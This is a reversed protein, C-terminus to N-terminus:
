GTADRLPSAGLRDDGGLTERRHVATLLQRSDHRRRELGVGIRGGANPLSVGLRDPRDDAIHHALGLTTGVPGLDRAQDVLLEPDSAACSHGPTRAVKGMPRRIVMAICRKNCSMSRRDVAPQCEGATCARRGCKPSGDLPVWPWPGWYASWSGNPLWSLRRM